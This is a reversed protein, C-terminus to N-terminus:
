PLSLEPTTVTAAPPRYTRPIVPKETGPVTNVKVALPSSLSVRVVFAHVGVLGPLGPVDLLGPLGLAEGEFPFNPLGTAAAGPESDESELAACVEEPRGVLTLVSRPSSPTPETGAPRPRRTRVPAAATAATRRRQSRPILHDSRRLSRMELLTGVDAGPQGNKASRPNRM